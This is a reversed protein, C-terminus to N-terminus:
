DQDADIYPRFAPTPQGQRNRRGGGTMAAAGIGHLDGHSGQGAPIREPLHATEIREDVEVLEGAAHAQRGEGLDELLPQLHAHVHALVVLGVPHADLDGAHALLVAVHGDGAVLDADAGLDPALLLLLLLALDVALAIDALGAAAEGQRGFHVGVLRFGAVAVAHELERQGLLGVAVAAPQLDVSCEWRTAGAARGVVGSPPRRGGAQWGPGPPACRAAASGTRLQAAANGADAARPHPRPRAQGT